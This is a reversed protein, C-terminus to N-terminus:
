QNTTKDRKFYYNLSLELAKTNSYSNSSSIGGVIIRMKENQFGAFYQSGIGVNTGIGLFFKGYQFTTNFNMSYIRFDSNHYDRHFNPVYAVGFQLLPTVSFKSKEKYKITYSLYLNAVQYSTSIKSKGKTSDISRFTYSDRWNEYEPDGPNPVERNWYRITDSRDPYYVKDTFDNRFFKKTVTLGLLLYKSNYLLGLSTEFAKNHQVDSFIYYSSKRSNYYYEEVDGNSQHYESYYEIQYDKVNSASFGVGLSPSFTARVSGDRKKILYKPAFALKIGGTSYSNSSYSTNINVENFNYVAVGIGSGLKKVLLDYSAYNNQGREYKDNKFNTLVSLRDDGKSGAFSPNYYMPMQNAHVFGQAKTQNSFLSGLLFMFITKKM